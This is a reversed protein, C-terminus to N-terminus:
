RLFNNKFCNKGMEFVKWDIVDQQPAASPIAISKFFAAVLSAKRIHAKKVIEDLQM